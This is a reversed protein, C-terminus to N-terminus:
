QHARVEKFFAAADLEGFGGESNGLPRFNRTSDLLLIRIFSQNVKRGPDRPPKKHFASLALAIAGSVHPAAFSTGSEAKAMLDAQTGSQAAAISVGPAVIDPKVIGSLAPGMSGDRYILGFADAAAAAVTIVDASTGPVTITYSQNVYDMFMVDRTDHLELWAHVDDTGRFKIPRILLSWEGSQVADKDGPLIEIVLKSMKTPESAYQSYKASLSNRTDLKEDVPRDAPIAYWQTRDPTQVAFEYVNHTGFWLELREPGSTAGDKGAKPRSNWRLFGNGGTLTFQAHRGCNRENGASKVVIRGARQSTETFATCRLEVDATGNHAGANMGNSINVVVPLGLDTARRDILNLANIHGVSYGISAGGTDYRIAIILARPAVGGPFQRPGTGTIRGAAISGVATGHFVDKRMSAPPDAMLEDIDSRTYIAGGHLGYKAAVAEGDASRAVTAAAPGARRDQQDWYLDIRSKGHEDVFAQHFPDIGDDILAIIAQDGEENWDAHIAPAGIFPVSIRCELTGGTGSANIAVVGPTEALQRVAAASATATILDDSRMSVSLGEITPLQTSTDVVTIVIPQSAHSDAKTALLGPDISRLQRQAGAIRRWLSGYSPAGRIHDVLAEVSTGVKVFGSVGDGPRTPVFARHTALVHWTDDFVPGGASGRTTALLYRTEHGDNSLLRGGHISLMRRGLDPHHIMAVPGSDVRTTRLQLPERDRLPRALRVIMLDSGHDYSEVRDVICVKRKRNPGRDEFEVRLDKPDIDDITALRAQQDLQAFGVLHAPAVVLDPAVLWGTSGGRQWFVVCVSRAVIQGKRLFSPDVMETPSPNWAELVKRPETDAGLAELATKVAPITDGLGDVRVRNLLWILAERAESDQANALQSLAMAPSLISGDADTLLHTYPSGRVLINMDTPSITRELAQITEVPLRATPVASSEATGEPAEATIVVSRASASPSAEETLGIKQLFSKDLLGRRDLAEVLARRYRASDVRTRGPQADVANAHQSSQSRIFSILDDLTSHSDALRKDVLDIFSDRTGIAGAVAPLPRDAQEAPWDDAYALLDAARSGESFILGLDRIRKERAIENAPVAYNANFQIGGTHVGVVQGTELDLVPSGASGASTSCDHALMWHQQWIEFSLFKGLALYKAGAKMDSLPWSDALVRPDPAFYGVVALPLKEVLTEAGNFTLSDPAAGREENIRLIAVDLVPHRLACAVVPFLRGATIDEDSFRLGVTFGAKVENYGARGDLFTDAVHRTTVVLGPAVVFAAGLWALTPHDIAELRGVSRGAAEIRRLAAPSAADWGPTPLESLPAGAGLALVPRERASRIIVAM